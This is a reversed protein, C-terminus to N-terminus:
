EIDKNYFVKGDKVVIKGDCLDKVVRPFLKHEINNLIREQLSEATDSNEVALSEQEIILGTDTGGDVFHVTAGSFKEGAAIVAKHVNLGYYNKGGYSPLLAPHINIIRNPFENIIKEPIIGLYGALLVYDAKYRMLIELIKDDREARSSFDKVACVFTDIGNNKARMLAYADANSSVVAVVSGNIKGNKIEDLVSQMNTGGGSVLVVLRKKEKDTNNM